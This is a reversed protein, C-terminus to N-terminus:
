NRRPGILGELAQTHESINQVTYRSQVGLRGALPSPLDGRPILRVTPPATERLWNVGILHPFRGHGNKLAPPMNAAVVRGWQFFYSKTCRGLLVPTRNIPSPNTVILDGEVIERSFQWLTDTFDNWRNPRDRFVKQVRIRLHEKSPFNLLSETLGDLDWSIAAVSERLFQDSVDIQGKYRCRVIWSAM